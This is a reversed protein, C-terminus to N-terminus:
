LTRAISLSLVAAVAAKTTHGLSLVNDGRLSWQTLRGM